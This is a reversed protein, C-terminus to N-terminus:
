AKASCAAFASALAGAALGIAPMALAEIITPAMVRFLTVHTMQVTFWIVSGERLGALLGLLPGGWSVFNLFPSPAAGPKALRVLGLVIVVVLMVTLALDFVQSTFSSSAFVAMGLPVGAYAALWVMLGMVIAALVALVIARLKM